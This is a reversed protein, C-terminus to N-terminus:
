KYFVKNKASEVCEYCFYEMSEVTGYHYSIYPKKDNLYVLGMDCSHCRIRPVERLFCWIVSRLDDNNMVNFSASDIYSM